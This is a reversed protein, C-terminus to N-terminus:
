LTVGRKTRPNLARNLRAKIPMGDGNSNIWTRKGQDVGSRIQHSLRFYRFLSCSVHSEARIHTALEWYQERNFPFEAHIQQNWLPRWVRVRRDQRTASISAVSRLRPRGPGCPHPKLSAEYSSPPRFGARSLLESISARFTGVRNVALTVTNGAPDKVRRRRIERQM